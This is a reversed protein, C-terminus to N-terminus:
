DASFFVTKVETYAAMAHMGLERGLGSRKYGGFPAEQHVSSNSNVSLVGTRMAKAVRVARGLDRTWLSGSLGYISDNAQRIADDEDDFPIVAAVPGFIEEQAVRMRNDVDALVCPTLYAGESLAADTPATGGTVVRAGEEVGLDIYGSVSTRQGASILPGMETAEDLPPGVVVRDSRAAFAEVFDDYASREVLIRSRACCDQGANDFVAGPMAEVCEDLDADAFVVSPSKGGLELAVRTINPASAVLIGAGTASEGTFGIKAVRPDAVLAAGVSSGPGSLVSVCSPPIGADLLARGLLIGTVPTYSAPKLVIPNGCALAPAVKWAAIMLPFNWPVILACVGIPERLTVGLGPKSVPPVEGQHKNAAGAYYEFTSACTEVEWRASGIPKGAERALTTALDEAGARLVDAVRQLHRGRQTAPMRAWIGDEFAAHAATVAADVDEADAKAVSAFPRGTHPEDVTMTGGSVAPKSVGGILLDYMEIEDM